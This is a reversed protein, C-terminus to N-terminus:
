VTRRLAFVSDIDSEGPSSLTVTILGDAPATVAFARRPIVRLAYSGPAQDRFSFAGLKGTRVSRETQQWAGDGNADIFARCNGLGLEGPDQVGNGNADDFVLGKILVKHTLGFAKAKARKGPRVTVDRSATDPLSARTGAPVLLRVVYAGPDIGTMQYGGNEASMATPEAPGPAGNGDRDLFVQQGPLPAEGGDKKGNGNDDLFVRGAIV